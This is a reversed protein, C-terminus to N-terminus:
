VAHLLKTEVFSNAYINQRILFSFLVDGINIFCQTNRLNGGGTPGNDQHYFMLHSLGDAVFFQEMHEIQLSFFKLTASKIESEFLCFSM